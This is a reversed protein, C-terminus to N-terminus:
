AHIKGISFPLLGLLTYLIKMTMLIRRLASTRLFKSSPSKTKVLYFGKDQFGEVNLLLRMLSEYNKNKSYEYVKKVNTFFPPLAVLVIKM